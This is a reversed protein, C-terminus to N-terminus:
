GLNAPGLLDWKNRYLDEFVAVAGYSQYRPEELFQVGASRMKNYEKTFDDVRLFFRVKRDQEAAPMISDEDDRKALLMGTSNADAPRVVVWRKGQGRDINETLRFGLCDVFYGIAEDYDRVPYMILDIRTPM